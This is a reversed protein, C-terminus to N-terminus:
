GPPGYGGGGPTQMVFIDGPDVDIADIGQLSVIEGSSREVWEKGVEGPEGGDVGFPPVRRHGCIVTVTMSELFKVKRTIGSGGGYQGRGGSGHRISFEDVQVPFRWELVEPDTSRTNTM